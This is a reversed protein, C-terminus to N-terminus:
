YNFTTTIPKLMESGWKEVDELAKQFDHTLRYSPEVSQIPFTAKYDVYPNFPLFVAKESM